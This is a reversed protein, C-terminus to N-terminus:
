LSRIMGTLEKVNELTENAIESAKEAHSKLVSEVYDKNKLLEEKRQKFTSTLEVIADATTDKLDKYRLTGDKYNQIFGNMEADKGFAKLLNFLNEIGPSM